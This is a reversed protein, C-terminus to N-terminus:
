IHGHAKVKGDNSIMISNSNVLHKLTKFQEDCHCVIKFPEGLTTTELTILINILPLFDLIAKSFTYNPDM